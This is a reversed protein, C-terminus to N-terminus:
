NFRILNISSKEFNRLQEREFYKTCIQSIKHYLSYLKTFISKIISISKVFYM